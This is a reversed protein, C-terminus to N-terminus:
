YSFVRLDLNVSAGSVFNFLDFKNYNFFTKEVNTYLKVLMGQTIHQEFFVGGSLSFGESSAITYDNFSNELLSSYGVAVKGGLRGSKTVPASYYAGAAITYWNVSPGSLSFNGRVVKSPSSNATLAAGLGWRNNFYCAGEIGSTTGWTSKLNVTSTIPITNFIKNFGLTFGIFSSPRDVNIEGFYKNSMLVGRNKFILGSFYYGLETSLIGMGAGLLADHIYHKNNLIRIVSTATALSYAGVSYWPSRTLGYEHHVMNASMFALAAHGSPFGKDASKDPRPEKVTYKIGSVLAVMTVASLAHTTLMRGWSSKGKIGGAKISYLMMTPLYQFYDDGKVSFEPAFGNRLDQFRRGPTYLIIGSLIFPAAVHTTKYLQTTKLTDLYQLRKVIARQLPAQQSFVEGDAFFLIVATILLYKYRIMM